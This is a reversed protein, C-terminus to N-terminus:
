YIKMLIKIAIVHRKSNQWAIGFGVHILYELAFIYGIM